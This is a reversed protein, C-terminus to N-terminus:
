EPDTGKPVFKVPVPDDGALINIRNWLYMYKIPSCSQQHFNKSLSAKYCVKLQKQDFNRRFVVFKPIHAVNQRFNPTICLRPQRSTPFGM